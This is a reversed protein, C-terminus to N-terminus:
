REGSGDIDSSSHWRATSPPPPRFEPKAFMAEIEEATPPQARGALMAPPLGHRRVYSGLESSGMTGHQGDNNPGWGLSCNQQLLYGLRLWREIMAAATGRETVGTRRKWHRIPLGDLQAPTDWAPERSTM